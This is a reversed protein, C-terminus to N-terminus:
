PSLSERKDRIFGKEAPPASARQTGMPLGESLRVCSISSTVPSFLAPSPPDLAEAWVSGKKETGARNCQAPPGAPALCFSLRPGPPEPEM